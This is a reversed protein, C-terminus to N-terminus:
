CRVRKLRWARACAKPGNPRVLTVLEKSACHITFAGETMPLEAGLAWAALSIKM